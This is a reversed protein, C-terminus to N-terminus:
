VKRSGENRLYHICKVPLLSTRSLYLMENINKDTEKLLRVPIFSSRNCMSSMRFLNIFFSVTLTLTKSHSHSECDGIQILTNIGPCMFTEVVFPTIYLEVHM